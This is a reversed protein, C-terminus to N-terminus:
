NLRLRNSVNDYPEVKKLLTEIDGSMVSIDACIYFAPMPLFDCLDFYKNRFIQM